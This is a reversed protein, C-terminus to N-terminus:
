TRKSDQFFMKSPFWEKMSKQLKWRRAEDKAESTWTYLRRLCPWPFLYLQSFCCGAKRTKEWRTVCMGQSGSNNSCLIHLAHHIFHFRTSHPTPVWGPLNLIAIRSFLHMVDERKKLMANDCKQPYDMIKLTDKLANWIGRLFLMQQQPLSGEKQKWSFSMKHSRVPGKKSEVVRTRVNQLM